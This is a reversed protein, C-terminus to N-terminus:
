LYIYLQGKFLMPKFLTLGSILLVKKKLLLVVLLIIYFNYFYIFIFIVLFIKGNSKDRDIYQIDQFM